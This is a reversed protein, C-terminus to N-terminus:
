QVWIKKVWSKGEQEIQLSYWGSPLKGLAWRYSTTMFLLQQRIVRGNIDILHLTGSFAQEFEMQLYDRTPNPYLAFRASLAEELPTAPNLCSGTPANQGFMHVEWFLPLVRASAGAFSQLNAANDRVGTYNCEIQVGDITGGQSSGYRETNYGGSFYAEGSLPFPQNSSPVSPFNENEFLTGLSQNGRLLEAHTLQGLNNGVLHRISSSSVLSSENLGEPNQRLKSSTLRYGLELRQISHGHGHLDIYLGKGYQKVLSDRAHAVFDHFEQWALQAEPNGNAAEGLARNADLKVRHLHNIIVHPHCGTQALLSDYFLEALIDTELDRSTVCGSCNRDPISAPKLQGGHPATIIIPLNGARYEIYQSTGYYSQGPVFSQGLLQSSGLLFCLWSLKRLPHALPIGTFFAPMRLANLM